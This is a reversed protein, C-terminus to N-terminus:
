DGVGKYCFMVNGVKFSSPHHHRGLNENGTFPSQASNKRHFSYEASKGPYQFEQHAERSLFPEIEEKSKPLEIPINISDDHDLSKGINDRDVSQKHKAFRERLIAIRDSNANTDDTIDTNKEIDADTTPHSTNKSNKSDSSSSQVSGGTNNLIDIAQDLKDLESTPSLVKKNYEELAVDDLSPTVVDNTPGDRLDSPVQGSSATETVIDGLQVDEGNGSRETANLQAKGKRKIKNPERIIVTDPVLIITEEQRKKIKDKNPKQFEPQKHYLDISDKRPDKLAKQHEVQWPPYPKERINAADKADQKHTDSFSEILDEDEVDGDLNELISHCSQSQEDDHDISTRKPLWERYLEKSDRKPTFKKSGRQSEVPQSSNQAALNTERDADSINKTLVTEPYYKGEELSTNIQKSVPGDEVLDPNSEDEASATLFSTERIFTAHADFELNEPASHLPGPLQKDKNEVDAELHAEPIANSDLDETRKQITIDRPNVDPLPQIIGTPICEISVRKGNGNVSDRKISSRRPSIDTNHEKSGQRQVIERSNRPFERSDRQCERSGQRVVIDRSNRRADYEISDRKPLFEKSYRNPVYERSDRRQSGDNDQEKLKDIIIPLRELLYKNRASQDVGFAEVPYDTENEALIKYLLIREQEHITEELQARESHLGQINDQIDGLRKQAHLM